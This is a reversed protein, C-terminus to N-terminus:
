AYYCGMGERELWENRKVAFNREDLIVAFFFFM